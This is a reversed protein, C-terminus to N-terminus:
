FVTEDDLSQQQVDLPVDRLRLRQGAEAVSERKRATFRKFALLAGLEPFSTRIAEQDLSEGSIIDLL